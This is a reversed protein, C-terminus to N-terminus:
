ATGGVGDGGGTSSVWSGELGRRPQRGTLRRVVRHHFVGLTRGIHPLMVWTELGYLLVAQVVEMYFMGLTLADAGERGLVRTMRAWKNQERRLNRVVAMWNDNDASLVSGLVESVLIQIVPPALCVGLLDINTHGYYIHPAHLM